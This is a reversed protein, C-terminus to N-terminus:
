PDTQQERHRLRADARPEARHDVFSCATPAFVTASRREVSGIREGHLVDSRSRGTTWGLQCVQCKRALAAVVELVRRGDREVRRGALLRREKMGALVLPSVVEAPALVEGEDE